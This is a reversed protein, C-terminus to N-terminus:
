HSRARGLRFWALACFLLAAGSVAVGARFKADAYIVRVRHQGSPVPVAQFAVNARLLPVLVDDVTAQWIPSYSQAITLVTPAPADIDAEVSQATVRVNSLVAPVANTALVSRSSMPPILVTQQPAFTTNTLAALAAEDEMFVPLQGATVLPLATPRNTWEAVSDARSIQSVGLFDLLGAPLRNTLSYLAQEVLRQERLQLTSSGNVKPVADILNLSSWEARRKFEWVRAANTSSVFTLFEEAEPTIFARSTGHQPKGQADPWYHQTFLPAPLTPNQRPTHTRVDVAILALAAFAFSPAFKGGRLSVVLALVAASLFSVRGLTNAVADPLFKGPLAKSWSYDVNSRFNEPWASYDIFRHERAAWAALGIGILVLLTGARVVGRQKSKIVAALGCGALLPIVFAALYLFKVPYRGLGLFPIAGRVTSFVPTQDGFSLCVGLAALGFLAWARADPWRVLAVLAFVVAVGGLYVSSLFGQSYQYYQGSPTEFSNFLPVIFNVWGWLPLQWKATAFAADRHSQQLLDFFPLLQAATLAATLLVVGALRLVFRVASVPVRVLDCLALLGVIMWTFLIVEPAGSLMQLAGVLACGIVWRGGERWAREALLVVFPMWGLTVLYNPWVFSAFMLGSFLYTTGALAGAYNNQTWQRALLYMGLGGLWVHAFSFLSLSWPLPLLLYILSFPYLVMTGWQALFPQGCNSYPNWLPLEGRWFCERQFHINPYALAGYDRSFFSAGGALVQPFCACLVLALFIGFPVPRLWRELADSHDTKM